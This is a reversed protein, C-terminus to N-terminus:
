FGNARVLRPNDKLFTVSIRMQKLLFKKKIIDELAKM